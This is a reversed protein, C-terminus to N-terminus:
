GGEPPTPATLPEAPRDTGLSRVLRQLRKLQATALGLRRAAQELEHRHDETLTADTSLLDLTGMVFALDNNVAHIMPRGLRAAETLRDHDDPLLPAEGVVAEHHAWCNVRRLMLALLLGLVAIQALNGTLSSVSMGGTPEPVNAVLVAQFGLILSIALYAGMQERRGRVLEQRLPRPFAMQGDGAHLVGWLAVALDVCGLLIRVAELGSTNRFTDSDM